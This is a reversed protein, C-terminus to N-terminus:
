ILDLKTNLISDKDVVLHNAGIQFYKHHTYAETVKEFHKMQVNESAKQLLAQGYELALRKAVKDMLIVKIAKNLYGDHWNHKGDTYERAVDEKIEELTKM